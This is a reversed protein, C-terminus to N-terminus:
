EVVPATAELSRGGSLVFRLFLRTTSPRSARTATPRPTAQLWLRGLSFASPWDDAVPRGSGLTESSAAACGSTGRGAVGAADALATSAGAAVGGTSEVGLSAFGGTEVARAFGRTTAGFDGSLLAVAEVGM